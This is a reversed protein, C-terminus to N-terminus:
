NQILANLFQSVINWYHSPRIHVFFIKIKLNMSQIAHGRAASKETVFVDRNYATKQTSIRTMKRGKQTNSSSKEIQLLGGLRQQNGGHM